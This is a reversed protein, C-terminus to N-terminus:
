SRYSYTWCTRSAKETIMITDVNKSFFRRSISKKCTGICKLSTDYKSEWIKCGSYMPFDREILDKEYMEIRGGRSVRGDYIQTFIKESAEFSEWVEDTYKGHVTSGETYHLLDLTASHTLLLTPTSIPASIQSNWIKEFFFVTFTNNDCKRQRDCYVFFMYMDAVRSSQLTRVNKKIYDENTNKKEQEARCSETSM